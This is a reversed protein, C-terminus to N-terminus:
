IWFETGIPQKLGSTSSFLKIIFTDVSGLSSTILLALARSLHTM